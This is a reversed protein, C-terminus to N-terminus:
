QQDPISNRQDARGVEHGGPDQPNRFYRHHHAPQGSDGAPQGHQSWNEASKSGQARISSSIVIVVLTTGAPRCPPATGSSRMRLKQMMAWMSWPLDVSASRRSSRGARDIAAVHDLLHEVRHVELAFLADRDLGAGDAHVVGRVVALGVLQVQDVSGAVDVEGVLDAAAQGGALAREQDDVRGLADLRLRHGVDVERELVIQRDDGDDVLDVQRVGIRFPDRSLDACNM